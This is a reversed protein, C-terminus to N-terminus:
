IDTYLFCYLAGSMDTKMSFLKILDLDPIGPRSLSPKMFFTKRYCLTCICLHVFITEYSFLPIADSKVVLLNGDVSNPCTLVIIFM